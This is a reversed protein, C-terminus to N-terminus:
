GIRLHEGLTAVFGDPLTGGSRWEDYLAAGDPEIKPEKRWAEPIAELAGRWEITPRSNKQRRVTILDTKVREKGAKKLEHHLYKKLSEAATAFSKARKALRDAEEKVAKATLLLEQHYLAVNEVKQEFAGEIWEYRAEVEPTIEGGAEIIEEVVADLLDGLEWLSVRSM